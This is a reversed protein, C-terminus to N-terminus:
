GDPIEIGADILELAVSLAAESGFAAAADLKESIERGWEEWRAVVQEVDEIYQDRTKAPMGETLVAVTGYDETLAKTKLQLKREMERRAETIRGDFEAARQEEELDAPNIIMEFTNDDTVKLLGMGQTECSKELSDGINGAVVFLRIEPYERSSQAASILWQPLPKNGSPRLYYIYRISEGDISQLDGKIKGQLTGTFPFSALNSVLEYGSADIAVECRARLEAKRPDEFPEAM